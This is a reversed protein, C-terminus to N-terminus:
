EVQINASSINASSSAAYNQLTSGWKVMQAGLWRVVQQHISPQKVMQRLGEREAERIFDQYREKRVLYDLQLSM